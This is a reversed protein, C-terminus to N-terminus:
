CLAMRALADGLSSSGRVGTEWLSVLRHGPFAQRDIPLPFPAYVYIVGDASTQNQRALEREMARLSEAPWDDGLPYTVLHVWSAQEARLATIKGPEVVFFWFDKEGFGCRRRNLVEVLFTTMGAVRRGAKGAAEALGAALAEPVAAAMVHEGHRQPSVSVQWGAADGGFTSVMAHSAYAQWERDGNLEDRWPLLLHRVCHGSILYRLPLKSAQVNAKITAALREMGAQWSVGDSWEPISQSGLAQAKGRRFRNVQALGIQGPHILIRQEELLSQLM